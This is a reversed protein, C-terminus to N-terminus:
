RIGQCMKLSLRFSGKIQFRSEVEKLMESFLEPERQYEKGM